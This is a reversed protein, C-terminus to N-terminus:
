RLFIHRPYLQSHAISPLISTHSAIVALSLIGVALSCIADQLCCAAPLMKLLQCSLQMENWEHLEFVLFSPVHREAHTCVERPDTHTRTLTHTLAAGEEDHPLFAQRQHAM